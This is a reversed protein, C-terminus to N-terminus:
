NFVNMAEDLDANVIKAYIQTTKISQHTLLKSVHEIRMGKRLARTAWTHRSTHFHINKDIGALKAIQKLNKNILATQRVVALHVASKDGLELDGSLLGFIYESLERHAGQREVIEQAVSPLRISLPESTKSTILRIREGDYNKWQMKLLDSIRIGGAFCAFVYLDRHQAQRSGEPLPVNIFAELEEETLYEIDSPESRISFRDFPNQAILGEDLADNLVKRIVKLNAGVTNVKNGLEGKLYSEYDKLWSVTVADLPIEKGCLYTSVKSVVARVRNLSGVAYSHRNREIVRKSFELFGVFPSPELTQFVRSPAYPTAEAELRLIEESITAIKQAILNNARASNNHSRKVRQLKEDWDKPNLYM